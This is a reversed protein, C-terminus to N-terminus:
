LPLPFSCWYLHHQSSQVLMQCIRATAFSYFCKEIKTESVSGQASEWNRVSVNKQPIVPKPKKHNALHLLTLVCWSVDPYVRGHSSAQQPCCVHYCLSITPPPPHHLQRDHALPCIPTHPLSTLGARSSAFRFVKCGLAVEKQVLIFLLLSSPLPPLAPNLALSIVFGVGQPTEM